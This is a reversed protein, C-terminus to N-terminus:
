GAMVNSLISNTELPISVMVNTLWQYTYPPNGGNAFVTANGDPVGCTADNSFVNATIEPFGGIVAFQVGTSCGNGDLGEVTYNGECLSNITPNTGGVIPNGMIDLWEYSYPVTGGALILDGTGDCFGFCSASALNLTFTLETPENITQDATTFNCGNNDTIVAFYTGSCLNVANNGVQGILAGTGSNYWNVLYPPFGG